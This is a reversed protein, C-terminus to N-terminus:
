RTDWPAKELAAILGSNSEVVHSFLITPLSIRVIFFGYDSYLLSCATAVFKNSLFLSFHLYSHLHFIRFIIAFVIPKENLFYNDFHM